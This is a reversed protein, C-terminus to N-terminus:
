CIDFDLVDNYCLNSHTIFFEYWCEEKSTGYIFETEIEGSFKDEYMVELTVCQTKTETKTSDLRKKYSEYWSDYDEDDEYDYYHGRGYGYSGYGYGYYGYSYSHKEEIYKFPECKLTLLYKVIEVTSLMEEPVVYENLTHANYYGCSLNVAAIGAFPALHSIDSFSGYAKKYGTNETIFKTFDPNDCSYFVADNENARDLEIMYNLNFLDNAYETKLFKNSGIGGIEEDECFLVYCDFEKIIQLIMYIGCRDDGGIGQPSSIMHVRTTEDYEEYFDKILEKHVTDMHATLLIPVTGKHYLYGDGEVCDIKGKLYKKLSKQSMKCLEVFEPYKTQNKKGKNAKTSDIYYKKGYVTLARSM